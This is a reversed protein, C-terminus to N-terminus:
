ADRSSRQGSLLPGGIGRLGDRLGQVAYVWRRLPAGGYVCSAAIVVCRRMVVLGVRLRPSGQRKGSLIINRIQFYHRFPASIPFLYRGLFTIDGQGVQHIFTAEQDMVVELGKRVCRACFDMDIHDIFFDDYFTGVKAFVDLPIISFSSTVMRCRAFRRPLHDIIQPPMTRYAKGNRRLPKGGIVGLELKESLEYYSDILREISGADLVSDQDLFLIAEVTGDKQLHDVIRNYAASLGINGNGGLWQVGERSYARGFWTVDTKGDRPTNDFVVAPMTLGVLVNLNGLLMERLPNFTVIAAAIRRKQEERV